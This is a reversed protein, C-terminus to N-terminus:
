EYKGQWVRAPVAIGDGVRAGQGHQTMIRCSPRRGAPTSELVTRRDSGCASGVLVYEHRTRPPLQPLGGHSDAASM